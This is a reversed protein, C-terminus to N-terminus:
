ELACGSKFTPSNAIILYADVVGAGFSWTEGAIIYGGDNTQQVSHGMDDHNGGYTKTWLTDGFSNTKILYVDKNDGGGSSPVVTTGAVIYGGDTTQQVSNGEIGSSGASGFHKTWLTDGMKNTKVLYLLTAKYIGTAIYGSDSTQQVSTGTYFGAIGGIAKTWLTDGLSDTKVLSLQSDAGQLYILGTIIYGGDYTKQVSKSDETDVNVWNYIKHFTIQAFLGLGHLVFLLILSRQKTKM